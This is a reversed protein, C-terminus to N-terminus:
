ANVIVGKIGDNGNVVMVGSNKKRCGFLKCLSWRSYCSTGSVIVMGEKFGINSQCGNIFTNDSTKGWDEIGTNIAGHVFIYNNISHYLKMGQLFEIIGPYGKIITNKVDVFREMSLTKRSIKNDCAGNYLGIICDYAVISVYEDNSDIPKYTLFKELEDEIGGKLMITDKLNKLYLYDYIDKVGSMYNGLLINDYNFDVLIRISKKYGINSFVKVMSGGRIYLFTLM